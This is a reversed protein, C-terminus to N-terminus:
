VRFRDTLEKLSLSVQSLAQARQQAVHAQESLTESVVKIQEANGSIESTVANQEEVASAIQVAMDRITTNAEDIQTLRQAAEKAHEVSDHAMAESAQMGEVARGTVRQLEGIMKQIEETSRHTRSSLERVEDAVVAFGRGHEGARAAEIAANLALLNTQEAIGQITALIGTIKQVQDDVETIIQSADNVQQALQSIGERNQDVVQMGQQTSDAADQAAAATQEANGAIEGTAVSMEQSAASLQALEEQQRSIEDLTRQSQEASAVADQTLSGSLAIVERITGQLREVFRNFALSVQGFEDQRAVELRSTLDGEGTSIDNMLTVLRRLPKTLHHVLWFVILGVIILVGLGLLSIQWLLQNQAAVAEKESVLLLFRWKLEPLTLTATLWDQGQYHLHGLYGEDALVMDPIVDNLPKGIWEENPHAILQNNTDMLWLQSTWRASLSMLKDVVDTVSVDASMVGDMGNALPMTMAIFLGGTVVDEYPLTVTLKGEKMATKYWPRTRPDYGEPLDIDPRAQLYEGDATGTYMYFFNGLQKGLTLMEVWQSKDKPLEHAMTEVMHTKAEVWEKSMASATRLTNNLEARSAEEVEQKLIHFSAGGVALLGLLLLSIVCALLRTRFTLGM